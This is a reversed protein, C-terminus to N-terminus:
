EEIRPPQFKKPTKVANKTRLGQSFGLGMKGDPNKAVSENTM